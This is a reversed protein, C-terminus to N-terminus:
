LNDDIFINAFLLASFVFLGLSYTYILLFYVSVMWLTIVFFFSIGKVFKVAYKPTFLMSFLSELIRGGDFSKIPLLNLVGLLISATIFYTLRDSNQWDFFAYVFIASFINLLPGLLCLMIEQFYSNLSNSTKLRAGLLGISFETIKIKFIFGALLHGLEHLVVVQLTLFSYSNKSLFIAFITIISFIGFKIKISKMGDRM